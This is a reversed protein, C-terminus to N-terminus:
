ANGNAVWLSNSSDVKWNVICQLIEVITWLIQKLLVYRIFILVESGSMVKKEATPKWAWWDGVVATLKAGGRICSCWSGHQPEYNSEGGEDTQIGELIITQKLKAEERGRQSRRNGNKIEKKKYRREASFSIKRQKRFWIM